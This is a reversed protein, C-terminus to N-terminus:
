DLQNITVTSVEKKLMKFVYVFSIQTDVTILPYGNITAEKGTYELGHKELPYFKTHDTMSPLGVSLLDHHFIFFNPGVGVQERFLGALDFMPQMKDVPVDITVAHKKQVPKAETVSKLDDNLYKRIKDIDDVDFEYALVSPKNRKWRLLGDVNM